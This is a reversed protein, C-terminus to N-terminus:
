AKPATNAKGSGFPLNVDGPKKIKKGSGAGGGGSTEKPLRPGGMALRTNKKPAPEIGRNHGYHGPM